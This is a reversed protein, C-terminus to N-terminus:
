SALAAAVLQALESCEYWVWEDNFISAPGPLSLRLVRSVHPREPVLQVELVHTGDGELARAVCAEAETATCSAPVPVHLLDTSGPAMPVARITHADLLDLFDARGSCHSAFPPPPANPQPVSRMLGRPRM